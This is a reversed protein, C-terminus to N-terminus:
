PILFAMGTWVGAQILGGRVSLPIGDLMYPACNGPRYYGLTYVCEKPPCVGMMYPLAPVALFFHGASIFPQLYPGTSHGYRELHVEEFYLPKHCLASATWSFTLPSWARPRFTADGLTCETPFEGQEPAIKYDIENIRKLSEPTPCEGTDVFPAAALEDELSPIELPAEKAPQNVISHIPVPMPQPRSKDLLGDNLLGDNLPRPPGASQPQADGFPDALVTGTGPQGTQVPLLPGTSPEVAAAARVAGTATEDAPKLVTQKSPRYPLWKLKHGASGTTYSVAIVASDDDSSLYDATKVAPDSAALATAPM